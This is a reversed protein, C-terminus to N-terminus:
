SPMVTERRASGLRSLRGWHRQMLRIAVVSVLSIALFFAGVM